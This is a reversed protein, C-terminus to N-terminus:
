VSELSVLQVRCIPQRWEKCSGMSGRRHDPLWTAQTKIALHIDSALSSILAVIWPNLTIKALVTQIRYMAMFNLTYGTHHDRLRGLRFSLDGIVNLPYGWMCICVTEVPLEATIYSTHYNHWTPKNCGGGGPYAGLAAWCAAVMPPVTLM